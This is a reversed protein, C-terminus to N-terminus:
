QDEKNRKKAYYKKRNYKNLSTQDYAESDTLAAIERNKQNLSVSARTKIM